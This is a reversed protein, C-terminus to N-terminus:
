SEWVFGSNTMKQGDLDTQDLIEGSSFSPTMAPLAKELRLIRACELVIDPDSRSVMGDQVWKWQKSLFNHTVGDNPMMPGSIKLLPHEALGELLEENAQQPGTCCIDDGQITWVM